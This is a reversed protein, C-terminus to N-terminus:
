QGRLHDRGCRREGRDGVRVQRQRIDHHDEEDRDDESRDTHPAPWRDERRRQRDRRVVEEEHRGAVREVHRIRAVDERERHHEGRAEHEALERSAHLRLLPLYAPALGVGRREVGQRAIEAGGSIGPVDRPRHRLATRRGELARDDDEMGPRVAREDFQRARSLFLEVRPIEADRAPGELVAPRRTQPRVRDGSRPRHANRDHRALPGRAHDGEKRALGATREIGLLPVQELRERTLPGHRELADIEGLDGSRRNKVGARFLHAARHERGDRVVQARREGRDAACSRREATSRGPEVGRPALLQDLRDGSLRRAELPEDGVQQVHDTELRASELETAVPDRQVLDDTAREVVDIPLEILAGHRGVKGGIQRQEVDIGHQEFVDEDVQEVVGRAVGRRSSRDLDGSAVAAVTDNEGDGVAARSDGFCQHPPDELLELAAGRGRGAARAEAERDAAADDLGVASRDV